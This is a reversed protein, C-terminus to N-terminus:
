YFNAGYFPSEPNDFFIIQTNEECAKQFRNVLFKAYKKDSKIFREFDRRITDIDRFYESAMSQYVNEMREGNYKSQYIKWYMEAKKSLKPAKSKKVYNKLGSKKIDSNIAFCRIINPSVIVPKISFFREQHFALLRKVDEYVSEIKLKENIEEDSMISLEDNFNKLNELTTALDDIDIEKYGGVVLDFGM